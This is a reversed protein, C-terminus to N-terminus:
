VDRVKGGRAHAAMGGPHGDDCGVAYQWYEKYSRRALLRSSGM